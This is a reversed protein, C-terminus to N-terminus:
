YRQRENIIRERHKQRKHRQRPTMRYNGRGGDRDNEGRREQVLPLAQGRTESLACLAAEAQM